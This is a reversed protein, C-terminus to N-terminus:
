SRTQVIYEGWRTLFPAFVVSGSGFQIMYTSQQTTKPVRIILVAVKM